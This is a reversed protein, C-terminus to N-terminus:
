EQSIPDFEVRGGEQSRALFTRVKVGEVRHEIMQKAKGLDRTHRETEETENAFTGKGYAGCDRHNVIVVEQIDHLKKAIAIQRLIFEVDSHEYPDVLNKAAGAAGVDDYRDILGQSKMFHVTAHVFRYDICHLLLAKVTHSMRM